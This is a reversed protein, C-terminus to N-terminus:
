EFLSGFSLVDIHALNRNQKGFIGVPNRRQDVVDPAPSKGVAGDRQLLVFRGIVAKVIPSERNFSYFLVVASSDLFAAANPQPNRLLCVAPDPFADLVHRFMVRLVSICPQSQQKTYQPEREVPFPM